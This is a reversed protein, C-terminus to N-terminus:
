TSGTDVAVACLCVHVCAYSYMCVSVDCRVTSTFARRLRADTQNYKFYCFRSKIQRVVRRAKIIYTQATHTRDYPNIYYARMCMCVTVAYPPCM